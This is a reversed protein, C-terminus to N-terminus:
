GANDTVWRSGAIAGGRHHRRPGSLTMSDDAAGHPGVTGRRDTRNDPPLTRCRDELADFAPIIREEVADALKKTAETYREMASIHDQLLGSATEIDALVQGRREQIDRCADAERTMLSERLENLQRINGATQEQHRIGAERATESIESIVQKTAESMTATLQVALESASSKLLAQQDDVFKETNRRIREDRESAMQVSEAAFAKSQMLMGSLNKRFEVFGRNVDARVERDRATFDTRLQMMFVRLFVGFITSSLAVGFGSIVNDIRVSGSDAGAPGAVEYLTYSLSALTFLFGLYYCNDGITESEISLRGGAWAVFAYLVLVAAAYVAAILSYGCVKLTVSGATGIVFALLFVTRDLGERPYVGHMRSSRM